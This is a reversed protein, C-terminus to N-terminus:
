HLQKAPPEGPHRRGPPSDYPPPAPQAAPEPFNHLVRQTTEMMKVIEQSSAEVLAQMYGGPDQDAQIRMLELCNDLFGLSVQLDHFMLGLKSFVLLNLPYLRGPAPASPPQPPAAAALRAIRQWVGASRCPLHIYDDAEIEYAAVPFGGDDGLVVLKVEPNMNKIMGLVALRDMQDGNLKAIMLGPPQTAGIELAAEPCDTLVLHHGQAELLGGILHLLPSGDNLVLIDKHRMAGDKREGQSGVPTLLGPLITEM